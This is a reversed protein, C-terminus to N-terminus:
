ILNWLFDTDKEKNKVAMEFYIERNRIFKKKNQSYYQKFLDKNQNINKLEKVVADLRDKDNDIYDYSHDIIDDFMDFGFEEKMTMVHGPSAVFIPFQYYFFPRFSKETIHISERSEEFISETVVNVYSNEFSSNLEPIRFIPPQNSKFDGNLPNIWGKELEYEDIKINSGVYNILEQNEKFFKLDFYKIISFLNHKINHTEPIFSYNFNDILKNTFLKIILSIRHDKPGRNRCMFFKGAKNTIFESDVNRLVNSFSYQLFNSKHVKIDSNEFYRYIISNNNIIIIKSLDIGLSNARSIIKGSIDGSDGEHEYSYIFYINNHKKSLNIVIDNIPLTDDLIKNLDMNPHSIAYFYTENSKFETLRVYNVNFRRNSNTYQNDNLHTTIYGSFDQFKTKNYELENGNPLRIDGDWNTYLLNIDKSELTEM